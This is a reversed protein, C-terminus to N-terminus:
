TDYKNNQTTNTNDYINAKNAIPTYRQTEKKRKMNKTNSHERAAHQQTARKRTM